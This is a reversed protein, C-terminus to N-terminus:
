SYRTVMWVGILIVVAGAAQAPRVLHEHLSTYTLVVLISVAVMTPYATGLSARRLAVAYLVFGVGYACVAAARIMWPLLSSEGIVIGKVAAVRLLVGALGGFAGSAVVFLWNM